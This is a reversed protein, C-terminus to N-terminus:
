AKAYLPRRNMLWRLAMAATSAVEAELDEELKVMWEYNVQIAKDTQPVQRVLTEETEIINLAAQLAEGAEEVIIAVQRLRDVPWGPHKAEARHLENM